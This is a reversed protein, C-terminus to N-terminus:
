AARPREQAGRLGSKPARPSSKPREQCSKAARPAIKSRCAFIMLFDIGFIVSKSGGFGGLLRGLHGWFRILFCDFISAFFSAFWCRWFAGFCVSVCVCAAGVYTANQSSKPELIGGLHGGFVIWFRDFFFSSFRVVFLVFFSAWSVLFVQGATFPFRHM